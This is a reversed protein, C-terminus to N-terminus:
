SLKESAIRLKKLDSSGLYKKFPLLLEVVKSFDKNTFAEAAKRSASKLLKEFHSRVGQELLKDRMVNARDVLRESPNLLKSNERIAGSFWKTADAINSAETLYSVYKNKSVDGRSAAILDRM